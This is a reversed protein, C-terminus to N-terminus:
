GRSFSATEGTTELRKVAAQLANEGLHSYRSTMAFDSHGLLEKVVYLDTGSMVLWSAFTHRLTHFVVKDRPDTIGENLKLKDVARGFSHSVQVIKVGDRGPFVLQDPGPNEPRRKQLMQKAQKTLYATRTKGNKTNKLTLVGNALDVAGWTLSFIEGARMGTHLSLLAQDHTNPSIKKIQKILADAEDKSLFRTRRNDESPLKVKKVPNDGIFLDQRKAYNFVQRVIALAYQSTRAAKGDKRMNSKIKELHFPAIEVMAKGDIVPKIWLTYVSEERTLSKEGRDAKAQPLYHKEWVDNFTLARREKQQRNAEAQKRVEKLTTPGKGTRRAEKLREMVQACHIEFDRKRRSEPNAQVWKSWWGLSEQVTKGDVMVRYQYFRDKINRGRVDKFGSNRTSHERYRLGKYKTKYWVYKAM